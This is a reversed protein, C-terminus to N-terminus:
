GSEYEQRASRPVRCEVDAPVPTHHASRLRTAWSELGRVHSFRDLPDCHPAPGNLCVCAVSSREAWRSIRCTPCLIPSAVCDQHWSRKIVFQIEADQTAVAVVRRMNPGLVPTLKPWDLDSGLPKSAQALQPVHKTIIAATKTRLRAKRTHTARSALAQHISRATRQLSRTIKRGKTPKIM